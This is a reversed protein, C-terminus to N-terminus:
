FFLCIQNFSVKSADRKLAWSSFKLPCASSCQGQNSPHNTSHWMELWPFQIMPVPCLIENPNWDTLFETYISPPLIMHHSLWCRISWAFFYKTLLVHSHYSHHPEFMVSWAVSWLFIWLEHKCPSFSYIAEKKKEKQLLGADHCTGTGIDAAKLHDWEGNEQNKEHAQQSPVGAGAGSAAGVGGEWAPAATIVFSPPCVSLCFTSLMLTSPFPFFLRLFISRTFWMFLIQHGSHLLVSTDSWKTTLCLYDLLVPLRHELLDYSGLVLPWASMIM